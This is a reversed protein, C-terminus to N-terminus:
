ESVEQLEELDDSVQVYASLLKELPALEIRFMGLNEFGLEVRLRQEDTEKLHRLLDYAENYYIPNNGM